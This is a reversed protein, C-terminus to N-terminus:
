DTKLFLRAFKLYKKEGGDGGWSRGGIGQGGGVENSTFDKEWKQRLEVGWPWVSCRIGRDCTLMKLNIPLKETDFYLLNGNPKPKSATLLM